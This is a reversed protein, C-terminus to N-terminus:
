QVGHHGDTARQVLGERQVARQKERRLDTHGGLVAARAEKRPSFVGVARRCGLEKIKLTERLERGDGNVVREVAEDRDRGAVHRPDAIVARRVQSSLM